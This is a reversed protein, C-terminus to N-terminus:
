WSGEFRFGLLKRDRDFLVSIGTPAQWRIGTLSLGKNLHDTSLSMGDLYRVPANSAYSSLFNALGLMVDKPINVGPVLTLTGDKAPPTAELARLMGHQLHPPPYVIDPFLRLNLRLRFDGLSFRRSKKM